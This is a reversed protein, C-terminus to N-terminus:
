SQATGSKLSELRSLRKRRTDAIRNFATYITSLLTKSRRAVEVYFEAAAKELVLSTDIAGALSPSDAWAGQPIAGALDLGEFSYQTELADTVTEQYTRTVLVKNLRSERAFGAFLDSHDPFRDAMGEYFSMSREELREAFSIVGATTTGQKELEVDM